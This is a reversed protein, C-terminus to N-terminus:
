KKFIFNWIFIRSNKKKKIGEIFVTQIIPNEL